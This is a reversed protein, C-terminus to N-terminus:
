LGAPNRGPHLSLDAPGITGPRHHPRIRGVEDACRLDHIRFRFGSCGDYSVENHGHNSFGGSGDHWHPPRCRHRGSQGSLFSRKRRIGFRCLASQKSRLRRHISSLKKPGLTTERPLWFLPRDPSDPRCIRREDQEEDLGSIWGTRSDDGRHRGLINHVQDVLQLALDKFEEGGTEQYLGLFNCVAFADTWLYRRLKSSAPSLRTLRVFETM